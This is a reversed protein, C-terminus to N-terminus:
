SQGAHVRIRDSLVRLVVPKAIYESFGAAEPVDRDSEALAIVARSKLERVADLQPLDLDVLIIDPHTARVM